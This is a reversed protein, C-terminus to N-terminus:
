SYKRIFAVGFKQPYVKGGADDVIVLEDFTVANAYTRYHSMGYFSIAGADDYLGGNEQNMTGIYMNGSVRSLRVTSPNSLAGTAASGGNFDAYTSNALSRYQYGATGNSTSYGVTVGHATNAGGGSDAVFAGYNTKYGSRIIQAVKPAVFGIVYDFDGSLSVSLTASAVTNYAATKTIILLGNAVEATCGSFTFGATELAAQAADGYTSFEWTGAVADPDPDLWHRVATRGLIAAGSGDYLAAEKGAHSPLGAGSQELQVLDLYTSAVTNGTLAM